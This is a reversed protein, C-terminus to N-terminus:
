KFQFTYTGFDKPQNEYIKDLKITVSYETDPQLTQDPKFVLTHANEVVLKGPVPPNITVINNSIKQGITWGEVDRTLKIHIPDAISVRGATTYSIYDRFKFLNDTE